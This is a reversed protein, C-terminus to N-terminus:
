GKAPRLVLGAAVEEATFEADMWEGTTEIMGDAHVKTITYTDTDAETMPMFQDGPEPSGVVFTFLNLTTVNADM